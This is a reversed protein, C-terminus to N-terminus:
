HQLHISHQASNYSLSYDGCIARDSESVELTEGLSLGAQFDFWVVQYQM